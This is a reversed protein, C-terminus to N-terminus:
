PKKGGTNAQSDIDKVLDFKNFDTLFCFSKLIKYFNKFNKNGTDKEAFIGSYNGKRNATWGM